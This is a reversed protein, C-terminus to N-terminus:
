ERYINRDVTDVRRDTWGEVYQIQRGTERHTETGTQRDTQRHM